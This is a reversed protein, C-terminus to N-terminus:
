SELIMDYKNTKTRNALRKAVCNSREATLITKKIKNFFRRKQRFSYLHDTVFSVRQEKRRDPLVEKANQMDIFGNRLSELLLNFSYCLFKYGPTRM